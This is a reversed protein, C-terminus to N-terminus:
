RHGRLGAFRTTESEPGQEMVIGLLMVLAPYTFGARPTLDNTGM